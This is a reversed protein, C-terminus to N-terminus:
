YWQYLNRWPLLFTAYGLHGSLSSGSTMRCQEAAGHVPPMQTSPSTLEPWVWTGCYPSAMGNPQLSFGGLLIPGLQFALTCLINQTVVWERSLMCDRWSLDVQAFWKPLSSCFGLSINWTVSGWQAITSASSEILESLKARPLHLQFSAADVEIGLFTLCTVPGELKSPEIPIGLHDFQSLLTRKQLDASAESRAVFVFDDLYHLGKSIGNRRLMWQVADAIASFIKPASRLGFPLM